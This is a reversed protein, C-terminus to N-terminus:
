HHWIFRIICISFYEIERAYSHCKQIWEPVYNWLCDSTVKSLQFTQVERRELLLPQLLDTEFFTKLHLSINQIKFGLASGQPSPWSFLHSLFRGLLLIPIVMAMTSNQCEYNAETPLESADLTSLSSQHRHPLHWFIVVQCSLM